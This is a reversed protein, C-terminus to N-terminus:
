ITTMRLTATSGAAMLSQCDAHLKPTKLDFKWHQPSLLWEFLRSNHGERGWLRVPLYIITISPRASYGHRISDIKIWIAWAFLQVHTTNEGIHLKYNDHDGGYHTIMLYTTPLCTAPPPRQSVRGSKWWLQPDPCVFYLHKSTYHGSLYKPWFAVIIYSSILGNSASARRFLLYVNLEYRV